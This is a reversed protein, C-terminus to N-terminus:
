KISCHLNSIYLPAWDILGMALTNDNPTMNVRRMDCEVNDGQKLNASIRVLDEKLYSLDDIDTDIPNSDLVAYLPFFKTYFGLHGKPCRNLGRVNPILCGKDCFNLWYGRKHNEEHEIIHGLKFEQKMLGRKILEYDRISRKEKINIYDNIKSGKDMVSKFRPQVKLLGSICTAGSGYSGFYITQNSQAYHELIHIIQAWVSANYMNGFHSPVRLQPLVRGKINSIFWHSIEELKESSYGRERLKLYLYEPLVTLDHLFNDLKKFLTHGLQRKSLKPLNKIHKIWRKHIIQEMCKIPLKAYPAHFTYYDAHFDGINRILDDYSHLQFNLYTDVSYHGFVKANIEGKPRYFDNVNASVKGFNKSFKAVRPNKSIVFAIAGSGQTPESPTGMEYSSVDAGIILARKIIDKEILGIANLIALTGGACANYIDQTISFKNIGLLDAYINSISKVSYTITETGVFLADISKPTISARYLANQAAKLGISIIDEGVDPLRMFFANLGKKYKDPDVNREIALERLDVYHRPAHFGMSDIGVNSFLHDNRLM